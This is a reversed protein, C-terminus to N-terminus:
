AGHAERAFADVRGDAEGQAAFGRFFFDVAGDLHDGVRHDAQASLGGNITPALCAEGARGLGPGAARQAARALPRGCTCAIPGPRVHGHYDPRAHGAGAACVGVVDDYPRPM